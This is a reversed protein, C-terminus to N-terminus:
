LKPIGSLMLKPVGSMLKPVGSMLKHVGSMLKHVGSLSVNNAGPGGM